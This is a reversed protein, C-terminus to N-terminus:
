AVAKRWQRCSGHFTVTGDSRVALVRRRYIIWALAGFPLQMWLPLQSTWIRRRYVLVLEPAYSGDGSATEESSYFTWYSVTAEDDQGMVWHMDNNSGVDNDIAYQAQAVLSAGSIVKETGSTPSTFTQEDTTTYDTSTNKCGATGWSTASKYDNWTAEGEVWDIRGSRLRSIRQTKASAAVAFIRLTLTATLVKPHGSIASLRFRMISRHVYDGEKTNQLGCNLFEGGGYNTDPNAEQMNTDICDTQNQITLTAM